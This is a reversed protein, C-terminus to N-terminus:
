GDSRFLERHQQVIEPDPHQDAYSLTKVPYRTEKLLMVTTKFSEM